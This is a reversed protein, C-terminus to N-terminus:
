KWMHLEFFALMGRYRADFGADPQAGGFQSGLFDMQARLEAANRPTTTANAHM